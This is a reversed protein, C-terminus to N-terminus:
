HAGLTDMKWCTNQPEQFVSICSKWLATPVTRSAPWVLHWELLCFDGKGLAKEALLFIGWMIVSFVQTYCHGKVSFVRQIWSSRWVWWHNPTQNLKQREYRSYFYIHCCNTLSISLYFVVTLGPARCHELSWLLRLFRKRLSLGARLLLSIHLIIRVECWWM